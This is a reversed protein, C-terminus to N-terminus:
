EKKGKMMEVIKLANLLDAMTIDKANVVIGVETLAKILKEEKDLNELGFLYDTSVCFIEALKIITELPPQSEGAEWYCVTNGAVGLQNGLEEQTLNAKKRLEKLRDKFLNIGGKIYVKTYIFYLM